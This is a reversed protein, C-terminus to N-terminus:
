FAPVPLSVSRAAGAALDGTHLISCCDPRAARLIVTRRM